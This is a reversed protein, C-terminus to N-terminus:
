RPAGEVHAPLEDTIEHWGAKDGTYINDSATCGPDDDLAGLPTVAVDREPDLRPLGSGCTKCFVHTFYRAEPVKYYSLREEGKTFRVGAMTTFGNTTFAAARAQRCRACHCNYVVKFPELVEFEVAGCLCGGRFVGARAEPLPRSQYVPLDQEAPPFAEHQPLADTIRHWPAMSGVFIHAAVPPGDNHSGAPVYIHDGDEDLNPVVSGCTGCFSRTTGMSSQYDKIGSRDSVWNFDGTKVYYYTGFAAGHAKRCMSCHCHYAYEPTGCINWKINGCLCQGASM